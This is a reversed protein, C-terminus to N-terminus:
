KVRQYVMDFMKIEKGQMTSYMEYTLQDDSVIRLVQRVSKNKEGTVPDDFISIFTLIKGTSDATGTGTMMMTGFNDIWYSIYKQQANDYGTIGIGEFPMGTFEGKVKEMLFRGGLLMERECSGHSQTPPQSPDMSAMNSIYNWKGVLKALQQHQPGPQALKMMKEMMAQEEPSMKPASEGPKGKEQAHVTITAALAMGAVLVGLKMGTVRM